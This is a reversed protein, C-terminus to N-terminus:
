WFREFFEDLKNYVWELPDAFFESFAERVELWGEWFPTFAIFWSEILSNIDKLRADWWIGLWDFNVLKPFLENWFNDWMARLESLGETAVTIWGQVTSYVTDWWADVINVVNSFAHCVWEWADQAYNLWKNLLRYIDSETIIDVIADWISDYEQAFQYLGYHLDTLYNYVDLFFDGLWGFPPDHSWCWLAADGFVQYLYRVIRRIDLIIGM